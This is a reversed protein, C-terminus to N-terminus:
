SIGCERILKEAAEAADLGDTDVVFRAVSEYVPGRTRMLAAIREKLADPDAAGRLLPRGSTTDSLNECLSELRNRLYICCTDRRIRKACAETTLTGGGLSLVLSGGRRAATDLVESLAEKELSRFGPEGYADFLEPISRQTVGELWADLDTFPLSLREALAKGVSSKGSGMFGTLCYIM